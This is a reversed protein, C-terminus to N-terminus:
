RDHVGEDVVDELVVYYREGVAIFVVPFTTASRFKGSTAVMKPTIPLM